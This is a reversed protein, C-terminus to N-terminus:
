SKAECHSSKPITLNARFRNARGAPHCRVVGFEGIIAGAAAMGVGIRRTQLRPNVGARAFDQSM